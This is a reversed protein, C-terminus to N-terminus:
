ILLSFCRFKGVSFTVSVSFAPFGWNVFCSVGEFCFNVKCLFRRLDGEDEDEDEEEDDEDDEEEELDGLFLLALYLELEDDELQELLEFDLDLSLFEL